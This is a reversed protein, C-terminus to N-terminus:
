AMSATSRAITLLFVSEEVAEVDHPLNPELVLLHGAPVEVTRDTLGVRLRGTIAQIVIRGAARHERLRTGAKMATLVLQEDADKYLKKANRDGRQWAAERRLQELEAMLDFTAVSEALAHPPREATGRTEGTQTM